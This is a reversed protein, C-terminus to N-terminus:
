QVKTQIHNRIYVRSEEIQNLYSNVLDEIIEYNAIDANREKKLERKKKVVDETTKRRGFISRQNVMEEAEQMRQMYEVRLNRIDLHLNYRIKSLISELEDLESMTQMSRQLSSIDIVMDEIGIESIQKRYLKPNM